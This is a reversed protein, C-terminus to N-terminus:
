KIMEGESIVGDRFCIMKLQIKSIFDVRVQEGWRATGSDRAAIFFAIQLDPFFRKVYNEYDNYNIYHAYARLCVGGEGYFLDNTM